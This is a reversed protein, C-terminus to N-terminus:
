YIREEERRRAMEYCASQSSPAAAKDTAGGRRKRGGVLVVVCKFRERRASFIVLSESEGSLRVGGCQFLQPPLVEVEDCVGSEMWLLFKGNMRRMEILIWRTATATTM